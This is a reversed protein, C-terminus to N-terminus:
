VFEVVEKFSILNLLALKRDCQDRIQFSEECEDVESGYFIEDELMGYFINGGVIYWLYVLVERFCWM